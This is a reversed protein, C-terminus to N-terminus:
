VNATVQGVISDVVFDFSQSFVITARPENLVVQSQIEDLDVPYVAFTPDVIGFDPSFIRSGKETRVVAEVCNRVDQQSNQQVVAVPGKPTFRFPLDFHPITVTM